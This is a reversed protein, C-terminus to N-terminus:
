AGKIGYLAVSSYQTFNVNTIVSVSTVPNTVHWGGSFISVEGSGNQDVGSLTRMTTNKSSNAYDLIDTVFVFPHSSSTGTNSGGIYMASISTNSGTGPPNTGGGYMLHNSYNANSDSNFRIQPSAGNALLIGRLQLHTYTSPISTFSISSQSTGGVTVTSISEYTGPPGGFTQLGGYGRTSAGALTTILPM